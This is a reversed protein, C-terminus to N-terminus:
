ENSKEEKKDVSEEKAKAVKVKSYRLVKDKFMYGKQLEEMVHESKVKDSEEHVVAEHLSTDFPKGKCEIIKVGKRELDEHFKKQIIKIGHVISDVDKVNKASEIARDFNDLSELIDLIIEEGSYKILELKEKQVRKRFNDFDAQLRLYRDFLEDKEKKLNEIQVKLEVEVNKPQENKPEEKAENETM